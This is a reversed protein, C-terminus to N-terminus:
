NYAHFAGVPLELNVNGMLFLYSIMKIYLTYPIISITSSRKLIVIGYM